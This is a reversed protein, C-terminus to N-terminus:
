GAPPGLLPELAAWDHAGEATKGNILFSPTGRVGHQDVAIQKMQTLREVAKQNALCAKAKAPTLGHSAALGDFGTIQAVRALQDPLPLAQLAQIDDRPIARLRDLWQSQTALIKGTLGFYGSTGACRSLMAGALDFQDRVYNRFEFSVRGSKVYKGMLVPVGEEEFHACHSCTLSGYEVLKVPANPNGIRFGGEPSAVVVRTWDRASAKEAPAAELSAVAGLSAAAALLALRLVLKV